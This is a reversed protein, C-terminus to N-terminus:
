SLQQAASYVVIGILVVTMALIAMGLRHSYSDLATIRKRVAVQENEFGAEAASIHLSDDEHLDVMSRYMYLVLFAALASGWLGVMMQVLFLSSM